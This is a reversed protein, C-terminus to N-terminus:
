PADICVIRATGSPHAVGIEEVAELTFAAWDAYKHAQELAKLASQDIVVMEVPSEEGTKSSIRGKIHLIYQRSM